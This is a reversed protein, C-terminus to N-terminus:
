STEFYLERYTTYENKTIEIIAYVYDKDTTSYYGYNNSTTYQTSQTPALKTYTIADKSVYVKCVYGNNEFLTLDIKFGNLYKNTYALANNTYASYLYNINGGQYTQYLYKYVDFNDATLNKNNEFVQIM